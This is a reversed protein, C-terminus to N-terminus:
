WPELQLNAVLEARSGDAREKTVLRGYTDFVTVVLRHNPRDIDVRCFNDEQTFNWAKYDMKVGRSIEFSDEQGPAKSDHVYDSPEGDAFPFPWYFASSTISFARLKKAKENGSFEMAAVNSCHIDGSLFVVNQIHNKVICSLIAKRTNPFAPWSDSKEMRRAKEEPSLELGERANIPNPVFVSSTVIFKPINGNEQQQKKLWGLLHDIQNPEDPHLSPRGLMHNDALDDRVDDMFRQTRGDVVFFPYSSCDFNYYLRRGFTRPGHSWQYSMYANIALNFLFRKSGDYFRDQTWNDEIEHDDLIMYTPLHRLLERMNPSSYASVYREQFEEFTDALGVPILRNFMDAYIQDGVMLTFRPSSGNRTRTSEEHLPKFIRDAHKVKWLLGPYRCSGIIFSLHEGVKSATPFTRFRAESQEAPLKTLAEIWVEPSPLVNFLADDSVSEDNPYPDDVTLTGIKAVYETDPKLVFKKGKGALGLDSGLNFTGTRDFERHLRFYYAPPNQVPQGAESVLTVVGLTRRESALKSGEDEPDAARIWLRCTSETTHGVVPGLGPPRVGSM